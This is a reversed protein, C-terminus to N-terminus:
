PQVGVTPEILKARREQCPKCMAMPTRHLGKFFRRFSIDKMYRQCYNCFREKM